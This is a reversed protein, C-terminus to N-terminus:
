QRGRIERCLEQKKRAEWVGRIETPDENCRRDIKKPTGTNMNGSAYYEIEYAEGGPIATDTLVSLINAPFYPTKVGKETDVRVEVVDSIRYKPQPKQRIHQYNVSQIYDPKNNKLAFEVEYLVGAM